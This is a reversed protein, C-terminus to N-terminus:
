SNLKPFIDPTTVSSTLKVIKPKRGTCFILKVPGIMLLTVKGRRKFGASLVGFHSAKNDTKSSIMIKTINKQQCIPVIRKLGERYLGQRQHNELTRCDWIYAENEALKWSFYKFKFEGGFSVWFYAAIDNNPTFFGFCRQGRQLHRLYRDKRNNVHFIPNHSFDEATLERFQFEKYVSELLNSHTTDYEYQNLIKTRFFRSIM